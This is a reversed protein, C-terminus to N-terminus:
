LRMSLWDWNNKEEAGLPSEGTELKVRASTKSNSSTVSPSKNVLPSPNFDDGDDRASYVKKNTGRQRKKIVDTKLSLPRVVGHLKLFLGCANCLPEGQPNRRWLPTTKTLCNTCSVSSNEKALNTSSNNNSGSTFANSKKNKLPKTKKIKLNTSSKRQISDLLSTDDFHDNDILLNTNPLLFSAHQTPNQFYSNSKLLNGFDHLNGISNQHHLLHSPTTISTTESDDDHPYSFQNYSHSILSQYSNPLDNNFSFDQFNDGAKEQYDIYNGNPGEFALSNLDFSYQPQFSQSKIPISSTTTNNRSFNNNHPINNSKANRLDYLSKSNLNSHDPINPDTDIIAISDDVTLSDENMRDYVSKSNNFSPYSHHDIDMKEFLDNKHYIDSKKNFGSQSKHLNPSRLSNPNNFTGNYSNSQFQNNELLNPPLNNKLSQSLNSQQDNIPIFNSSNMLPDINNFDNKLGLSLNSAFDPNKNNNKLMFSDQSTIGLRLNSKISEFDSKSLNDDNRLNKSLNSKFLSTIGRLHDLDNFNSIKDDFDLQNFDDSSFFQDAKKSFRLSDIQPDIFDQDIVIDANNVDAKSDGERLRVSDLKELNRSKFLTFDADIAYPDDDPVSNMSLLKIHNVYDFKDYFM